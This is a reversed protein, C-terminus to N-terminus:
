ATKTASKRHGIATLGSEQLLEGSNVTAYILWHDGCNMRSEVTCELYALADLIVPCNNSAAKIALSDLPQQNFRPPQQFQRPIQSGEKLINLVFRDGIQCLNEAWYAGLAVSLGPPNFSAQSVWSVLIAEAQTVHTCGEPLTTLVCVSGVVRGVAQETRDAQDVLSPQRVERSKRAKKLNQAFEAGAAQCQELDADTPTFKVRITEFGLVYGADLLKAEIDDIAEGSWGYSGFVGGLKTKASHSLVLGLATQVQTPMHGGLTPSGIVFGDADSVIAQIEEPSAAECNVSEVQLGAATLGKAIAGALTTTNGYASAYLLAVKTDQDKQAQCWDRYDYQIRSLSFKVVPGHAPAYIRPTLTDLRDLITEVQRTQAAHLCDFYYHRDQDLQKWQEDYLADGCVHAGFLKDTFLIRAPRDYTLLGDPWRPTPATIFELIHNQGLDLTGDGRPVWVQIEEDPFAARLSVAGAKSCVFTIQPAEDQLATLTVLRNSNVHGLIVYDIQSLDLRKILEDFYLDTFSEGPPDILATKDGQIVYSNSTTGQQRAYEVEFKLREWTRSRLALVGKAIEAVQVDRPRIETLM